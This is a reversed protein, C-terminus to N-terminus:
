RIKGRANIPWVAEVKGKRIAVLEDHENVCPCPHAPIIQIREGIEPKLSCSSIDVHGHEESAYNIIAEPYEVIQGMSGDTYASASLTKSGADLFM